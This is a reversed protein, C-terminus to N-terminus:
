SKTMSGQIEAMEQGRISPATEKSKCVFGQDAQSWIQHVLENSVEGPRILDGQGPIVKHKWNTEAAADAAAVIVRAEWM